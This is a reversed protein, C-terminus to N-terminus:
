TTTTYGVAGTFRFGYAVDATGDIDVDLGLRELFASGSFKAGGVKDIELVLLGTSPTLTAVRMNDQGTSLADFLGSVTGAGGSLGAAYSRWQDTGTSWSTTELMNTDVDLTWHNFGDAKGSAWEVRGAKGSLAAM